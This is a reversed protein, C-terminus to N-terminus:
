QEDGGQDADPDQDDTALKLQRRAWEPPQQDLVVAAAFTACARNDTNLRDFASMALTEPDVEAPLDSDTAGDVRVSNDAIVSQLTVADELSEVFSLSM